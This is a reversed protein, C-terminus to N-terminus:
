IWIRKYLYNFRIMLYSLSVCVFLFVVWGFLCVCFFSACPCHREGSYVTSFFIKLNRRHMKLVKYNDGSPLPRPGKNSYIQIGKVWHHKTCLKTSKQETTRYFFKLSRWMPHIKAIEYNDGRSFLRSGENSCVQIM